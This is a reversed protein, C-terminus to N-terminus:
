DRRVDRSRIRCGDGRLAARAPGIVRCVEDAEASRGGPFGRGMGSRGLDKEETRIGALMGVESM